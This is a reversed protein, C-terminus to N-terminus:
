IFLHYLLHYSAGDISKINICHIANNEKSLTKCVDTSFAFLPFRLIGTLPPARRKMTNCTYYYTVNWYMRGTSYNELPLSLTKIVLAHYLLVIPSENKSSYFLLTCAVIRSASDIVHVLLLECSITTSFCPSLGGLYTYETSIQLLLLNKITYV